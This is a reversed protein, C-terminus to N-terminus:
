VEADKFRAKFHWIHERGVRPNSGPWAIKGSMWQQLAQQSVGFFAAAATQTPHEVESGDPHTVIVTRAKPNRIGRKSEAIRERAAASRDYRGPSAARIADFVEDSLYTTEADRINCLHPHERHQQILAQEAPRMDSDVDLLEIIHFSFEGTENFAAQIGPNPHTGKKLTYLHSYRRKAFYMTSGFYFFEGCKVKYTGGGHQKASM